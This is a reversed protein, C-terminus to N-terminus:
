AAEIVYFRDGDNVADGDGCVRQSVRHKRWQDWVRLAAKEQPV